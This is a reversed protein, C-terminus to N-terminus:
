SQPVPRGMSQYIGEILAVNQKAKANASDLKLARRFDGLAARYKLRPLANNDTMRAYGREGYLAALTKKDAGSKELAAIKGDLQPTPILVSASGMSMSSPVAVSDRAPTTPANDSVPVSQPINTPQNACGSAAVLVILAALLPFYRM